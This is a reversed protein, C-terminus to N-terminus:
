RFFGSTDSPAIEFLDLTSLEFLLSSREDDSVDLDNHVVSVVETTRSALWVNLIARSTNEAAAPVRDLVDEHADSAAPLRREGPELSAALVQNLKAPAWLAEAEGVVDALTEGSLSEEVNPAL